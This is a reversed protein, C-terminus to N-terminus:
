QRGKNEDPEVPRQAEALQAELEAIRQDRQAIVARLQQVAIGAENMLYILGDM